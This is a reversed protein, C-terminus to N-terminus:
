CSEPKLRSDGKYDIVNGSQQPGHFVSGKNEYVNGNQEQMKSTVVTEEEEGQVSM